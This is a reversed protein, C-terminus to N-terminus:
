ESKIRELEALLARVSNLNPITEPAFRVAFTEEVALVVNLHGLSNWAKVTESGSTEDLSEVPVELEEAIIKILLEKM